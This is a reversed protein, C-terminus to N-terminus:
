WRRDRPLLRRWRPKCYAATDNRCIAIRRPACCLCRGDCCAGSACQHDQSCTEFCGRNAAAGAGPAFRALATGSLAAGLGLKVFGWRTLRERDM